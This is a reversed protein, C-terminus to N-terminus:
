YEPMIPIQGKQCFTVESLPEAIKRITHFKEWDIDRKQVCATFTVLDLEIGLCGPRMRSIAHITRIIPHSM